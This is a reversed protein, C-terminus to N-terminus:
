ANTLLKNDGAPNLIGQAASEGEVVADTISAPETQITTTGNKEEIATVKKIFGSPSGGNVDSVIIDGPQTKKLEDSTKTFQVTTADPVVINKAEIPTLDRVNDAKRSGIIDDSGNELACHFNVFLLGILALTSIKKM